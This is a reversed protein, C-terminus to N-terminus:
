KSIITSKKKLRDVQSEAYELTREQEEEPLLAFLFLLNKQAQTHAEIPKLMGAARLLTELPKHLLPELKECTEFSPKDGNLIASITPHSLGALKAFERISTNRKSLESELLEQLDMQKM